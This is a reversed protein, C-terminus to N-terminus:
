RPQGFDKSTISSRSSKSGNPGRAAGPASPLHIVPRRHPSPAASRGSAGAARPATRPGFAACVTSTPCAGDLLHVGYQARGKVVRLKVSEYDTLKDRTAVFLHGLEDRTPV